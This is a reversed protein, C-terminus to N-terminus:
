CAGRGGHSIIRSCYYIMSRHSTSFQRAETAQPSRNGSNWQDHPPKAAPFEPSACPVALWMSRGGLAMQV